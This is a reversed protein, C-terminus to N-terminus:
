KWPENWFGESRGASATCVMPRKPAKITSSIVYDLCSVCIVYIHTLLIVDRGYWCHSILPISFTRPSPVFKFVYLTSCLTEYGPCVRIRRSKSDLPSVVAGNRRIDTAPNPEAHPELSYARDSSPGLIYCCENRACSDLRATGMRRM